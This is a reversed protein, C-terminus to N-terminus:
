PCTSKKYINGTTDVCLYVGGSGAIGPLLPMQVEGSGLIALPIVPTGATRMTFKTVAGANDWASDFSLTSATHWISAQYTPSNGFIIEGANGNAGSAASYGYVSLAPAVNNSFYQTQSLAGITTGTALLPASNGLLVYGTGLSGLAGVPIVIGYQNSLNGSDDFNWFNTSQAANTIILDYAAGAGGSIHVPTSSPGTIQSTIAASAILNTVQLPGLLYQLATLQQFIPTMTSQVSLTPGTVSNVTSPILWSPWSSTPTSLVSTPVYASTQTYPTPTGSYVSPPTPTIGDLYMIPGAGEIELDTSGSSGGATISTVNYLWESTGSSFLLYNSNTGAVTSFSPGATTNVDWANQTTGSSYNVNVDAILSGWTNEYIGGIRIVNAEGHATSAHSESLNSTLCVPQTNGATVNIELANMPYGVQPSDNYLIANLCGGSITTNQLITTISEGFDTNRIIGNRISGGYFILQSVIAGPASTPANYYLTSNGGVLNVNEFYLNVNPAGPVGAAFTSSNNAYCRVNADPHRSDFTHTYLVNSDWYWSNATSNVASSSTEQVMMEFDGYANTTSTDVCGAPNFASLSPTYPTSWYSSTNTWTMPHTSCVQNEGPSCINRSVYV